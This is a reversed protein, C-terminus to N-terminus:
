GVHRDWRHIFVQGYLGVQTFPDGEHFRQAAALSDAELIMFSGLNTDDQDSVCMPGAQVLRVDAGAELNPKFYARHAARHMERLETTGPKDFCIRVYLM